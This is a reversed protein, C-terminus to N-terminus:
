GFNIEIELNMQLTDQLKKKNKFLVFIFILCTIFLIIITGYKLYFLFDIPIKYYCINDYFASFQQIYYINTTNIFLSYNFYTQKILLNTYTNIILINKDIPSYFFILHSLDFISWHCFIAENKEFHIFGNLLSDMSNNIFNIYNSRFDNIASFKIIISSFSHIQAIYNFDFQNIYNNDFLCCSIQSLQNNSFNSHKITVNSQHLGFLINHNRTLLQYAFNCEILNTIKYCLNFLVQYLGNEITGCNSSCIKEFKSSSNLNNESKGSLYIAGGIKNAICGFFICSIINVSFYGLNELFISGGSFSGSLDFFNSNTIFYCGSNLKINNKYNTYNTYEVCYNM